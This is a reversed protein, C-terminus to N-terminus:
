STTRTVSSPPQAREHRDAGAPRFIEGSVTSCTERLRAMAATLRERAVARAEVADWTIM